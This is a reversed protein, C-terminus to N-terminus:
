SRPRAIISRLGSRSCRKSSQCRSPDPVRRWLAARIEDGARRDRRQQAREKNSGSGRASRSVAKTASRLGAAATSSPVGGKQPLMLAGVKPPGSRILVRWRWDSAKLGRGRALRPIGIPASRARVAMPSEGPGRLANLRDLAGNPLTVFFAARATPIFSPSPGMRCLRHSLTSPGPTISITILAGM